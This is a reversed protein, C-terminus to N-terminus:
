SCSVYLWFWIRKQTPLVGIRCHGALSGDETYWDYFLSENWLEDEPDFRHAGEDHPRIGFQMLAEDSIKPVDAM